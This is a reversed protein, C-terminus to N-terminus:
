IEFNNLFEGFQELCREQDNNLFRIGFRVVSEEDLPLEVRVSEGFQKYYDSDLPPTLFTKLAVKSNIEIVEERSTDREYRSPNEKVSSIRTNLAVVTDKQYETEINLICGGLIGTNNGSENKEFTTDPSLISLLYEQESDGSQGEVEWGEPVTFSFGAKENSVVTGEPTEKIRYDGEQSWQTPTTGYGEEPSNAGLLYLFLGGGLIVLLVVGAILIPKNM